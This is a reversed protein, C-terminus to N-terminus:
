AWVTAERPLPGSKQPGYTSSHASGGLILIPLSPFATLFPILAFTALIILVKTPLTTNFFPSSM